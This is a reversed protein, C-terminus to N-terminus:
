SVQERVGFLALYFGLSLEFLVLPLMMGMDAGEPLDIVLALVSGLTYLATSALGFIALAAPIAKSKYFLYNNFISGISLFVFSLWVARTSGAILMQGLSELGAIGSGPSSAASQSLTLLLYDPVKAGAQLVVEGIRWGLALLALYPNVPRLITFLSFVLAMVAVMAVFDVAVALQYQLANDAVLKLTGSVDGADVLSAKLFLNSLLFALVTAIYLVGSIRSISKTNM